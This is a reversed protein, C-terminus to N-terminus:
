VTLEDEIQDLRTLLKDEEDLIARYAKTEHEIKDEASMLQEEVQWKAVEIQHRATQAQWRQEEVVRREKPLAQVDESAELKDEESEAAQEKTTIPALETKIQARNTDLKIWALEYQEKIKAIEALRTKITAREAKLSRTHNESEHKATLEPGMMATAAEERKEEMTKPPPPPADLIAKTFDDVEDKEPTPIPTIPPTLNQDPEM